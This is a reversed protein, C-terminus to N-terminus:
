LQYVASMFVNDSAALVYNWRNIRLLDFRYGVAVSVSTLMSYRIGLELCTHMGTFPTLSKFAVSSNSSSGTGGGFSLISAQLMGEAQLARSLPAMMELRGGMSFLWAGSQYVDPAANPNQAINQTRTYLFVEASPGLYTSIDTGFLTLLGTPYLNAVNFSGVTAEASVNYNKISSSRQFSMGIRYGYTEHFRSWQLTLWSSPGSYKENSIHDDRIAYYGVGAQVGIGTPLWMRHNTSDQGYCPMTSVVLSVYLAAQFKM